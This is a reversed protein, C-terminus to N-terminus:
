DLPLTRLFERLPPGLEPHALSVEIAAHLWGSPSGTDHRVLGGPLEDGIQVQFSQYACTAKLADTLQLEGGSGPTLRGIEDMVEGSCVYRGIIILDSPADAVAPKEVLDDVPLLGGPSMPGCPKVVGYRSVDERPVRKVAVVSGGSAAAADLMTSMLESSGMLEDPLLVAFPEGAVIERAMGVAHGLGLPAPQHVFRVDLSDLRELRELLAHKGAKDLTALLDPAPRFYAEVATKSVHSVVVVTEIGANVAEEIVLHLIPLDGMPLLEKPVAKTLPLFRTGLGAAPIVATRARM